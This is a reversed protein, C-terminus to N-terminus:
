GKELIYNIFDSLVPYLEICNNENCYAAPQHTLYSILESKIRQKFTSMTGICMENSLLEELNKYSM